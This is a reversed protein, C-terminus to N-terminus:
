VGGRHWDSASWGCLRELREAAPGRNYPQDFLLARGGRLAWSRITEPRDDIFVDARVRCKQKGPVVLVHGPSIGFHERLWRRRTTEWGACSEWAATAVVVEDGAVSMAFVAERAGPIVDLGDWFATTRLEALIAAEAPHGAFFRFTEPVIPQHGERTVIRNVGGVFDALVGDCDLLITTMM